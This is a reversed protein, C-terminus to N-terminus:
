LRLFVNQKRLWWLLLWVLAYPLTVMLLEYAREPLWLSSGQFLTSSISRFPEMFRTSILYALISNSGIIVFLEAWRRWQRLDILWYFLALLIWSLGGCWLVYSSSWRNKVIPLLPSWLAGLLLMAVGGALLWQLLHRPSPSRKMVYAAFVGLMATSGHNWMTIPFGRGYKGRWPADLRGITEDYFWDSFIGGATFQGPTRGPFPIAMQVIWYALLVGITTIIQTRMSTYLVLCVAFFYGLGLMQLVSYSLGMKSPDWSLLNGNVWWGFFIMVGLRIAAHRLIKAKSDRGQLRKEVSFVLAVGICFLFLPFIFDYFHFGAWDVHTFQDSLWKGFSGEASDKTLVRIIAAGGLLWFMSFGRLADLAILRRSVTSPPSSMRVVESM